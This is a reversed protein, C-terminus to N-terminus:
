VRLNPATVVQDAPARRTLISVSAFASRMIIIAPSRPSCATSVGPKDANTTCPGPDIPHSGLSQDAPAAWYLSVM